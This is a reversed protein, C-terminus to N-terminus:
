NIPSETLNKTVAQTIEINLHYLDIVDCYIEILANLCWFLNSWYEIKDATPKVLNIVGIKHFFLPHDSVFYLLLFVDTLSRLLINRIPKIEHSKLRDLINKIFTIPPGMRLVKRTLAMHGQLKELRM